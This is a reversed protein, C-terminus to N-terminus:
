PDPNFCIPDAANPTCARPKSTPSNPSLAVEILPLTHHPQTWPVGGPSSPKYGDLVDRCRLCCFVLCELKFRRLYEFSSQLSPQRGNKAQKVHILKSSSALLLISKYSCRGHLLVCTKAGLM